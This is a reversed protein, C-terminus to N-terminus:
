KFTFNDKNISAKFREEAIYDLLRLGIPSYTGSWEIIENLLVPSIDSSRYENYVSIFDESNSLDNLLKILCMLGYLGYIKVFEDAKYNLYEDVTNNTHNIELHLSKSRLHTFPIVKENMENVEEKVSSILENRKIQLKNLKSLLDQYKTIFHIEHDNVHAMKTYGDETSSVRNITYTIEGLKRDYSYDSLYTFVNPPTFQWNSDKEIARILKNITDDLGNLKSRDRTSLFQYADKYKKREISSAHDNDRMYTLINRPSLM